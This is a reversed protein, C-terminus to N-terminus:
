GASCVSDRDRDAAQWRLDRERVLIRRALGAPGLERSRVPRCRPWSGEQAWRAVTGDRPNSLTGVGAM